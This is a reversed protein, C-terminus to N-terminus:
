EGIFTSIVLFVFFVPIILILSFFLLFKSHVADITRKKARFQLQGSDIGIIEYIEMDIDELLLGQCVPCYGDKGKELIHNGHYGQSCSECKIWSSLDVEYDITLNCIGCSKEKDQVLNGVFSDYSEPNIKKM